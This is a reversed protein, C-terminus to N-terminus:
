SKKLRDKRREEAQRKQEDLVLRHVADQNRRDLDEFVLGSFAKDVRVVKARIPGGVRVGRHYLGIEFREGVRMGTSGSLGVGTPSVDTASYVAPRGAVKVHLGSIKARYAGRPGTSDGFSIDFPKAAM